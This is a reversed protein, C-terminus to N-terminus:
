RQSEGGGHNQYRHASTRFCRPHAQATHCGEPGGSKWAREPGGLLLFVFLAWFDSCRTQYCHLCNGTLFVPSGCIIEDIIYHKMNVSFFIIQVHDYASYYM